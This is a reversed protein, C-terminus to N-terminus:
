VCHRLPTASRIPGVYGFEFRIVVERKVCRLNSLAGLKLPSPSPVGAGLLMIRFPLSIPHRANAIGLSHLQDIQYAQVITLLGIFRQLVPTFHM